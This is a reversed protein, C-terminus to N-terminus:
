GSRPITASAYADRMDAHRPSLILRRTEVPFLAAIHDHCTFFLIQRESDEAFSVLARATRSARDRDFNVLVDDMMLPLAEDRHYVDLYALKLALFVQELTGRSLQGEDLRTGDVREVKVRDEDLPFLVRRFAGGSIAGFIESGRKLVKPQKESEYVQLTKKLLLSAVRLQTWRDVSRHLRAKLEEQEALLKEFEEEVEMSEIEKSLRGERKSLDESQLKLAELETTLTHELARAAEWETRSTSSTVSDTKFSLSRLLVEREKELARYQEHQLGKSRFAEEDEIGAAKLLAAIKDHAEGVRKRSVSLSFERDQIREVLAKKEALKERAERELRTWQGILEIPNAEDPRKGNVNMVPRRNGEPETAHEAVRNLHKGPELGIENESNVVGSHHDNGLSRGIQRVRNSFDGWLNKLSALHEEEERLNRLRTNLDRLRLVMTLAEEPKWRDDLGRSGLFDKWRAETNHFDMRAKDITNKIERGRSEEVNIDTLQAELADSFVKLRRLPEEAEASRKGAALVDRLGSQPNGLVEGTIEAMGQRLESISLVIARRDQENEAMERIIASRRKKLASLEEMRSQRDMRERLLKWKITAPIVLTLSVSISALTYFIAGKAENAAIAVGLAAAALFSQFAWFLVPSMVRNTKCEAQRILKDVSERDTALARSKRAKESLREDLDGVRNKSFLWQQLRRQASRSLAGECLPVLQQIQLRRRDISERLRTYQERWEFLRPVLEDIRKKSRVWEDTFIRIDKELSASLDTELVRERDWAQRLHSMEADIVERSRVIRAQLREIENPLEALRKAEVGLEDIASACSLIAEDPIITVLRDKLRKLGNELEAMSYSAENRQELASELRLIGDAPFDHADEYFGLESELSVFRKWEEECQLMGQLERLRVETASAMDNIKRRKQTVDEMEERLQAYQQPRERLKRLRREVERLRNQLAPISEGERGGRSMTAKLRDDVQRIVDLPNVVVSGLAAAVIKGRLADQDLRRITDLDFAFLNEYLNRDMGARFLPVASPDLSNGNEDTISLRGERCGRKERRHIRIVSGLPTGITVWGSRFTGDSSEYINTAGSKKKFGFFVSKAFELTTSKGTENAGLVVTLGSSFGRILLRKFTGFSEIFLEEIWM